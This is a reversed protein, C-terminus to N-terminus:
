RIKRMSRRKNSCMVYEKEDSSTQVMHWNEILIKVDVAFRAASMADSWDCNMYEHRIKEYVWDMTEETSKPDYEDIIRRVRLRLIHAKEIRKIDDAAKYHSFISSNTKWEVFEVWGIVSICMLVM